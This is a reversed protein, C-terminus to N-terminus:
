ALFDLQEPLRDGELIDWKSMQGAESGMGTVWLEM